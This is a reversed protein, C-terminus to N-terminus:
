IHSILSDILIKIVNRTSAKDFSDWFTFYCKPTISFGPDYVDKHLPFRRGAIDGAIISHADLQGSLFNIQDKVNEFSKEDYWNFLIIYGLMKPGVLDWAFNENKEDKEGLGYFFLFLEETIKTRGFVTDNGTVIVEQCIHKLFKKQLSFSPGALVLEGVRQISKKITLEQM